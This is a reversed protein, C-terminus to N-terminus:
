PKDFGIFPVEMFDEMNHRIIYDIYTMVVQATFRYGMPNLHGGLYFIRRYDGANAPMYTYLDIVYINSYHAAIEHLLANVQEKKANEEANAGTGKPMSMLFFKADPQIQKYKEIIACYYGCFTTDSDPDGNWLDGLKGIEQGKNIVDNVGLAIIYAQAALEPAFMGKEEAYGTMFEKATMGGRSFNHVTSGASRAMFQGWSYEYMDHYTKNKGSEDFREFEGSALSDGIVAMTRFISTFGCDTLINDLPKEDPDPNALHNVYEYINMGTGNESQPAPNFTTSAKAENAALVDEPSGLFVNDIRYRVPSYDTGGFFRFILEASSDTIEFPISITNWNKETVTEKKFDSFLKESGNGVVKRVEFYLEYVGVEPYVDVSLLYKGRPMASNTEYSLCVSTDSEVLMYSNDGETVKTLDAGYSRATGDETKGKTSWYWRGGEMSSWVYALNTGNVLLDGEFDGNDVYLKGATGNGGPVSGDTEASSYATLMPVTISLALALSLLRSLKM